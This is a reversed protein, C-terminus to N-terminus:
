NQNSQIPWGFVNWVRNIEIWSERVFNFCHFGAIDIQESDNSSQRSTGVGIDIEETVNQQIDENGPTQEINTIDFLRESNVENVNNLVTSEIKSKKLQDRSAAKLPQSKKPKKNEGKALSQKLASGSDGTSQRTKSSGSEDVIDKPVTNESPARQRHYQTPIIQYVNDVHSCKVNNQMSSTNFSTYGCMQPVSRPPLEPPLKPMKEDEFICELSYSPDMDIFQQLSSQSDNQYSDTNCLLGTRESNVEHHSGSVYEDSPRDYSHTDSESSYDRHIFNIKPVNADLYLGFRPSKTCGKKKCLVVILVFVSISLLISLVIIVVSSNELYPKTQETTGNRDIANKGKLRSNICQTDSDFCRLTTNIELCKPYKYIENGFYFSDPCGSSFTENCRVHNLIGSGALELCNGEQFPIKEGRPYCFEILSTFRKNPVCHYGHTTNCNMRISSLDWAEKNMPCKKVPYVKFEYDSFSSFCTSFALTIVLSFIHGNHFLM